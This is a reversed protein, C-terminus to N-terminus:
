ESRWNYIFVRCDGTLFINKMLFDFILFYLKCIQCIESESEDQQAGAWIAKAYFKSDWDLILSYIMNYM